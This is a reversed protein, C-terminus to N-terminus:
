KNYLAWVNTALVIGGGIIMMFSISENLFLYAAIIGYIPELSVAISATQANITKLSYNFISHAFATFVIGLLALVALQEISIEIPELAIYPLIFLAAFTNQYFAVKKASTKAVFKRNLLTLIAFSLASAVGWCAGIFVSSSANNEPLIFTIGIVTLLAQVLARFCFKEKFLLPEFFSVFVPFTAFTILGIAVSSVKIAQFFSGWHFALIGGTIALAFLAKNDCKLSQKKFIFVFAAIAMAAFFARGFVIFAAPLNLWKAFLGSLAFLLVASHLAALAQKNNDPVSDNL